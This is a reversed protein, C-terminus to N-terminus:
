SFAIKRLLNQKELRIFSFIFKYLNHARNSLIYPQKLNIKHMPASFQEKQKTMKNEISTRM